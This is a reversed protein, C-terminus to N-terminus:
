NNQRNMLLQTAAPSGPVVLFIRKTNNKLVFILFAAHLVLPPVSLSRISKTIKLPILRVNTKGGAAM